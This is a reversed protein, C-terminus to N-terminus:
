EFVRLEKSSTHYPRSLEISLYDVNEDGNLYRTGLSAIRLSEWKTRRKKWEITIVDHVLDPIDEEKFMLEPNAWHSKQLLVICFAIRNRLHWLAEPSLTPWRHRPMLIKLIWVVISDNLVSDIRNPNNPEQFDSSLRRAKNRLIQAIQGYSFKKM